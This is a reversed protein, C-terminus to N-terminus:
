KPVGGVLEHARRRLKIGYRVMLKGQAIAQNAAHTIEDVTCNSPHNFGKQGKVIEGGAAEALARVWRLNHETRPEGIQGRRATAHAACRTTAAAM